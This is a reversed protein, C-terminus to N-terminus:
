FRSSAIEKEILNRVLLQSDSIMLHPIRFWTQFQPDSSSSVSKMANSLSSLKAYPTGV